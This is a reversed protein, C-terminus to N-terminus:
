EKKTILQNTDQLDNAALPHRVALAKVSWSGNVVIGTGINNHLLNMSFMAKLKYKQKICQL